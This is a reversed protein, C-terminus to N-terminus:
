AENEDQLAALASWGLFLPLGVLLLAAMGLMLGVLRRERESLNDYSARVGDITQVLRALPM